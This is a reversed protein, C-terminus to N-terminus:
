QVPWRIRLKTGRGPASELTLEGRINRAREQMGQIGWHGTKDFDHRSLGKGDDIVELELTADAVRRARVIISGAEAHKVVNSLAEQVIRFLAISRDDSVKVDELDPCILVQCKLACRGALQGAYWEIASWLGLLALVPPHLDSIVSRLSRIAADVSERLKTVREPVLGPLQDLRNLDFCVAALAGGLEDHLDHAIRAREEERVSAQSAALQGMSNTIRQLEQEAEKRRSADRLLATFLNGGPLEKKTIVLEIPFSSKNKRLGSAELYAVDDHQESAPAFKHLYCDQGCSVPDLILLTLNQGIVEEAKYGFLREATSNFSEIVWESTIVAMGDPMHDIMMQRRADNDNDNIQQQRRVRKGLTSAVVIVGCIDGVDDHWPTYTLMAWALGSEGFMRADRNQFVCAQRRTLAIMSPLSLSEGQLARHLNRKIEHGQSSSFLDLVQQGLAQRSTLGSLKELVPNWSVINLHQDFAAVGDSPNSDIAQTLQASQCLM